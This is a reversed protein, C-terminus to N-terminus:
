QKEMDRQRISKFELVDKQCWDRITKKWKERDQRLIRLLRSPETRKMIDKKNGTKATDALQM